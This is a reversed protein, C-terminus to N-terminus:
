AGTPSERVMLGARIIYADKREFATRMGTFVSRDTAFGGVAIGPLQDHLVTRMADRLGNTGMTVTGDNSGTRSVGPRGSHVIVYIGYTGEYDQAGEELAVNRDSEFRVVVHPSRFRLFENVIEDGKASESGQYVEVDEDVFEALTRLQTVIWDEVLSAMSGDNSM